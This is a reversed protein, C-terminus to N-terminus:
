DALLAQAAIKDMVQPLASRFRPGFQSAFVASSFGSFEVEHTFTTVDGNTTLFRTIRLKALPLATEFAYQKGPEFSVVKFSSSPGKLPTIKGEVDMALPAAASAEKLETDWTPWRPVDMWIAWVRQPPAKVSVSHRFLANTGQAIAQQTSTDPTTATTSNMTPSTTNSTCATLSALTVASALFCYFTLKIFSHM